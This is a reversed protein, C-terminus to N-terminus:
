NEIIIDMEFPYEKALGCHDGFKEMLSWLQTEYYGDEDLKLEFSNGKGGNEKIKKNLEDHRKKLLMIGYDTLKVKVKDNMSIKVEM